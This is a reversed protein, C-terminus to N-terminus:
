HKRRTGGAGGGEAIAGPADKLTRALDAVDFASSCEVSLEGWRLVFRPETRTPTSTAPARAPRETRPTEPAKRPLGTPAGFEGAKKAAQYHRQCYGRAAHEFKCGEVKCVPKPASAPEM